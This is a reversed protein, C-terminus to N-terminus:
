TNGYRVYQGDKFQGYIAYKIAIKPDREEIPIERILLGPKLKTNFFFMLTDEVLELIEYKIKDLMAVLDGGDQITPFDIEFKGDSKLIYKIDPIEVYHHEIYNRYNNFEEYWIKRASGIKNLIFKANQGWEKELSQAEKEFKKDEKFFFGIKLGFVNGLKQLGGITIEGKIFFDKIGERYEDDISKEIDIQGNSRLKVVKGAEVEAIHNEQLSKLKKVSLSLAKYNELIPNYSKNFESKEKENLLEDRFTFMQLMLRAPFPSATGEDWVKKVIFVEKKVEKMYFKTIVDKRLILYNRQLM